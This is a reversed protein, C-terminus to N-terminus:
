LLTNGFSFWEYFNSPANLWWFTHTWSQDSLSVDWLPYDWGKTRKYIETLDDLCMSRKEMHGSPALSGGSTSIGNFLGQDKIKGHIYIPCDVCYFPFSSQPRVTTQIGQRAHRAVLFAMAIDECNKHEDVYDLVEKPNEKDNHYLDLYKKHFFSAKTLIINFKQRSYVIPWTHYVMRTKSTFFINPHLKPSALRPYYGVLASPHHRWAEFGDWMSECDVRVDDDVMFVAEINSHPNNKDTLEHIPLFRSNLSDKPVRIFEVETAISAPTSSSSPPLVDELRPPIKDVEAWVVYVKAIKSRADNGKGCTNIWHDLSLKLMDPRKFTNIVVAFSTSQSKYPQTIARYQPLSLDQPSLIIKKTGHNEYYVIGNKRTFNGVLILLFFFAFPLVIYMIFPFSIKRKYTREGNAGLFRLRSGLHYSCTRGVSAIITSTSTLPPRFSAPPHVELDIDSAHQHILRRPTLELLHAREEEVLHHHHQAQASSHYDHDTFNTVEEPGSNIRKRM